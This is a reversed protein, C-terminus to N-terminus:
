TRSSVDYIVRKGAFIPLDLYHEDVTYNKHLFDLGGNTITNLILRDDWHRQFHYPEQIIANKCNHESMINQFFQERKDEKKIYLLVGSFIIVDVEFDVNIPDNWSQVAYNIHDCSEYDKQAKRIPESSTDFGFYNYSFYRLEHLIDNVPGTRCGVDIIGVYKKDKIIRAQKEFLPYAEPTDLYAMDAITYQEQLPVRVPTTETGKLQDLKHISPWPIPRNTSKQLEM